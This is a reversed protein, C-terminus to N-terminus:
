LADIYKQYGPEELVIGVFANSGDMEYKKIIKKAMANGYKRILYHKAIEDAKDYQEGGDMWDYFLCFGKNSKAM